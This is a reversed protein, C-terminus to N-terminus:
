NNNLNLLLNNGRLSIFVKLQPQDSFDSQMEPEQVSVSTFM